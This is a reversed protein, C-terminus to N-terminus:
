GGGRECSGVEIAEAEDASLLQEEGVAVVADVVLVERADDIVAEGFTEVFRQLLPALLVDQALHNPDHADVARQHQDRAELSARAVSVAIVLGGAQHGLLGEAGRAVGRHEGLLDRFPPPGPLGELEVHTADPIVLIPRQAGVGALVARPQALGVVVEGADAQAKLARLVAAL